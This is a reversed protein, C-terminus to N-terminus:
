VPKFQNLSCTRCFCTEAPLFRVRSVRRPIHGLDQFTFSFRIMFTNVFVNRNISNSLAMTKLQETNSSKMQYKM